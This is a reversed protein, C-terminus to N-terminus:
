LAGLPDTQDPDVSNAMGDLDKPHVIRHYFCMTVIIMIPYDCCNTQTSFDKATKSYCFLASIVVVTFIRFIGVGLFNPTLVLIAKGFLLAGM